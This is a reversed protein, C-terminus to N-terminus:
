RIFFSYAQQKNGSFPYSFYLLGVYREITRGGYFRDFAGGILNRVLVGLSRSRKNINNKTVTDRQDAPEPTGVHRIKTFHAVAYSSSVRITQCGAFFCVKARIENKRGQFMKELKTSLRAPYSYGQKVTERHRKFDGTICSIKRRM